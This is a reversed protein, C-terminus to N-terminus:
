RRRRILGFVGLAGLLAVSPEPVFVIRGGDTTSATSVWTAASGTSVATLGSGLAANFTTSGAVSVDAPFATNTNTRLVVYKGSTLSEAVTAGGGVFLHVVQSNFSAPSTATIGTPTNVKGSDQIASGFSAFSAPSGATFSGVSLTFTTALVADNYVALGQTAGFGASVTITAAKALSCTAITAILLQRLKM